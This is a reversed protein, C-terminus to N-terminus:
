HMAVTSDMVVVKVCVVEVYFVFYLGVNKDLTVVHEQGSEEQICKLTQNLWKSDGISAAIFEYAPVHKRRNRTTTTVASSQSKGFFGKSIM